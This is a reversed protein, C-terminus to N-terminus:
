PGRSQHFTQLFDGRSQKRLAEAIEVPIGNLSVHTWTAATMWGPRHLVLWVLFAIHIDTLAQDLFVLGKIAMYFFTESRTSPDFDIADAPKGKRLDAHKFFNQETKLISVVAKKSDPKIAASDFLLEPGKANRNLDHIIQHANSALSHISVPEGDAFWLELATKLQRKAADIRTVRFTGPKTM